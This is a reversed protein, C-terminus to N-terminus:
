LQETNEAWHGYHITLNGNRCRLEDLFEKETKADKLEVQYCLQYMSGMNVTKVSTREWSKLYKEFLDDFVETYDLDEHIMIRLSMTRESKIKWASSHILLMMVCIFVTMALAYTLYGMGCALGTVMSFFISSIDRSNGPISRFRVLTFAGLVAVGTGLNGNVLMVITQVLVPTLILTALFGRATKGKVSFYYTFAIVIGMALAAAACEATLRFSLGGTGSATEAATNLISEFM